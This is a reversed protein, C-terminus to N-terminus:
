RDIYKTNYEIPKSIIQTAKLVKLVTSVQFDRLSTLTALLWFEHRLRGQNTWQTMVTKSERYKEIYTTLKLRFEYNASTSVSSILSISQTLSELLLQRAAWASLWVLYLTLFVAAFCRWDFILIQKVIRLACAPASQCLFLTGVLIYRQGTQLNLTM